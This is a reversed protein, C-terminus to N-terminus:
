ERHPKAPDTTAHADEIVLGARRKELFPRVVLKYLCFVGVLWLGVALWMDGEMERTRSKRILNPDKTPLFFRQVSNRMGESTIGWVADGQSSSQSTM